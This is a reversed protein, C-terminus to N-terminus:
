RKEVSFEKLDRTNDEPLLRAAIRKLLADWMREIPNLTPFYAAM